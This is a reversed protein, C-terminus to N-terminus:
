GRAQYTSTSPADTKSPDSSIKQTTQHVGPIITTKNGTSKNKKKSRNKIREKQARFFFANFPEKM